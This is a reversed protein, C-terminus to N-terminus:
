SIAKMEKRSWAEQMIIAKEKSTVKIYKFFAKETAHGTVAMIAFTPVGMRWMNSAFARRATHTSILESLPLTLIIKEGAVAKELSVLENFGTEKAVDKIYENLKVNSIAPPLSNSTMGKYRTMIEKITKHIPINVLEGTKQTKIEIFDGHINQPKINTFDSFRLGTWCGVLFLDRVRELKKNKSLDLEALKILHSEDLYVNDVDAQVKIFRKNNHEDISHLKAEKSENMCIKIFKICAGFYNDSLKEVKYAFDKLEYYFDLNIDSFQFTSKKKYAAFRKLIGYASNYPKIADKSFKSGDRKVRKGSETDAILKDIYEFFTYNVNKKLDDPLQGETKIVFKCLEKLEAEDPYKNYKETLHDFTDSVWTRINELDNKIKGANLLTAKERPENKNANWDVPKIQLGTGVIVLRSDYRIYCRLQTPENKPESKQLFYKVSYRYGVM